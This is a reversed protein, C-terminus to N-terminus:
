ENMMDREREGKLRGPVDDVAVPVALLGVDDNTAVGRVDLSASRVETALAFAFTDRGGTGNFGLFTHFPLASAAFHLFPM